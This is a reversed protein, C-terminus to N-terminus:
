RMAIPWLRIEKVLGCGFILPAEGVSEGFQQVVNERHHRIMARGSSARTTGNQIAFARTREPSGALARRSASDSLTRALRVVLDGWLGARLSPDLEQGSIMYDSTVVAVDCGMLVHRSRHLFLCNGGEFSGWFEPFENERADEYHGHAVGVILEYHSRLFPLIDAWELGTVGYSDVDLLCIRAFKQEHRKAHLVHAITQDLEILRAPHFASGNQSVRYDSGFFREIGSRNDNARETSGRLPFVDDWVLVRKILSCSRSTEIESVRATWFDVSVDSENAKEWAVLCGHFCEPDSVRVTRGTNERAISEGLAFRMSITSFLGVVAASRALDRRTLKM